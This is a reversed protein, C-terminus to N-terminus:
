GVLPRRVVVVPELEEVVPVRIQHARPGHHSELRLDVQDDVLSPRPVGTGPRPTPRSPSPAIREGPGSGRPGTSGEPGPDGPISRRSGPGSRKSRPRCTAPPW